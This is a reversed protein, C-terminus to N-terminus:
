SQNGKTRRAAQRVGRAPASWSLAKGTHFQRYATSTSLGAADGIQEWTAPRGDPFGDGRLARGAAEHAARGAANALQMLLAIRQLPNVALAAAEALLAARDTRGAAQARRELEAIRDALMDVDEM